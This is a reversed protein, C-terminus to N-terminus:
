ESDSQPAPGSSRQQGPGWGQGAGQHIPRQRGEFGQATDSLGPPVRLERLEHGGHVGAQGRGRLAPAMKYHVSRKKESDASERFVNYNPAHDPDPVHRDGLTGAGTPSTPTRWGQAGARVAMARLGRAPRSVPSRLPKAGAASGPSATPQALNGPRFPPKHGRRGKLAAAGRPFAPRPPLPGSPDTAAAPGLPKVAPGPACKFAGPSGFLGEKISRRALFRLLSRPGAGTPAARLVSVQAGPLGRHAAAISLLRAGQRHDVPPRRPLPTVGRIKAGLLPAPLSSGSIPPWCSPAMSKEAGQPVAPGQAHAGHLHLLAAM